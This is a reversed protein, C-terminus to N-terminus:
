RWAVTIYESNVNYPSVTYYRSLYSFYTALSHAISTM